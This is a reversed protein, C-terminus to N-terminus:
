KLSKEKNQNYTNINDKIFKSIVCSLEKEKDVFSHKADPIIVVQADSVNQALKQMCPLAKEKTDDVDNTVLGKDKDGVVFLTPVKINQLYGFDPHENHYAMAHFPKYICFSMFTRSSIDCYGLFKNDLLKEPKNIIINEAADYMMGKHKDIVRIRTGDQPAILVLASINGRKHKNLYEVVKSCGFCYGVFIINEYGENELFDVWADVDKHFDEFRAYTAGRKIKAVLNGDADYQNLYNEKKYDNTFGTLYALGMKGVEQQLALNVNSIEESFGPVFYICTNSDAKKYYGPLEVGDVNKTYILKHQNNM